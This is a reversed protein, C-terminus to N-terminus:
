QPHYNAAWSKNRMLNVRQIENRAEDREQEITSEDPAAGRKETLKVVSRIQSIAVSSKNRRPVAQKDQQRQWLLNARVSESMETRLMLQRTTRPSVPIAAVPLNYPFSPVTIPETMTRELAATPPRQEEASTQSRHPPWRERTQQQDQPRIPAITNANANGGGGRLNEFIAKLKEQAVSKSLPVSNDNDEGESEDEM